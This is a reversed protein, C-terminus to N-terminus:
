KNNIKFNKSDRLFFSFNLLVREDQFFIFAQKIPVTEPRTM